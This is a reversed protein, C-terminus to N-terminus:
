HFGHSISPHQVRKARTRDAPTQEGSLTLLLLPIVFVQGKPDFQWRLRQGVRQAQTSRRDKGINSRDIGRECAHTRTVQFRHQVSHPIHARKTAERRIKIPVRESSSRSHLGTKSVDEISLLGVRPRSHTRSRVNTQVHTRRGAFAYPGAM